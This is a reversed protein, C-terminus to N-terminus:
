CNSQKTKTQKDHICTQSSFFSSSNQCCIIIWLHSDRLWRVTAREKNMKAVFAYVFFYGMDTLWRQPIETTHCLKLKLSTVRAPSFSSSLFMWYQSKINHVNYTKIPVKSQITLNDNQGKQTIKNQTSMHRCIFLHVFLLFTAIHLAKDVSCYMYFFISLSFLYLILAILCFFVLKKIWWTTNGKQNRM